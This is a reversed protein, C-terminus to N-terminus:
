ASKVLGATGGVPSPESALRQLVISHVLEAPTSGCSAALDVLQGYQEGTFLLPIEFSVRGGGPFEEASDWDWTDPDM